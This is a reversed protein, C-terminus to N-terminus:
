NGASGSLKQSRILVKSILLKPAFYNPSGTSKTCYGLFKRKDNFSSTANAKLLGSLLSFSSILILNLQFDLAHFEDVCKLLPTRLSSVKQLEYLTYVM